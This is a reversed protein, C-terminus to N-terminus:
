IGDLKIEGEGELLRQLRLSDASTWNQACLVGVWGLLLGLLATLRRMNVWNSEPLLKVPRIVVLNGGCIAVEVFRNM